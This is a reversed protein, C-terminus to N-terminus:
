VPTPPMPRETKLAAVIKWRPWKLFVSSLVGAAQGTRSRVTSTAPQILYASKRTRSVPFFGLPTVIKQPHVADAADM